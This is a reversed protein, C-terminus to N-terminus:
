ASSLGCLHSVDSVVIKDSGPWYGDNGSLFGQAKPSTSSHSTSNWIDLSTSWCSYVVGDHRPWSQSSETFLPDRVSNLRASM